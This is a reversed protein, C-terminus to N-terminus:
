AKRTANRSGDWWELVDIAAQRADDLRAIALNPLGSGALNRTSVMGPLAHGLEIYGTVPAGDAHPSAVIGLGRRELFGAIRPHPRAVLTHGNVSLLIRDDGILVIPRAPRSASILACALRSKGSRSPGFILLGWGDISVASAHIPQTAEPATM